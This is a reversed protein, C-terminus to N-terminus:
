QREGFFAAPILPTPSAGYALTGAWTGTQIQDIQRDNNRDVARASGNISFKLASSDIAVIKSYILNSGIGLGDSCASALTGAASGFHIFNAIAQGVAKCDIQHVLLSNLDHASSDILPIIAADLGLKLLKGYSVPVDHAAITLQGTADMTVAISTVAVDPLQYNAFLLDGKQNGLEYHLGTVTHTAIYSGTTQSPTLTLTENLGVHKALDGFDQGVQIMTSVFDPAIQKLEDNLAGVGIAEAGELLDKATGSPLKALIQDIVWRSPDDVDDTAAIITNVVAGATGPMNTALDFTSHLAYTGTADLPRTPPQDDGGGDDGGMGSSGPGCAVTASLALSAALALRTTTIM